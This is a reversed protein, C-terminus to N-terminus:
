PLMGMTDGKEDKVEQSEIELGAAAEQDAAKLLVAM